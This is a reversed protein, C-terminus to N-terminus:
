VTTRFKYDPGVLSLIAATTFLKTNSAPTFLKDADHSYLTKGTTLSVVEIGWFGRAVDPEALIKDIDATLNPKKEAVVFQCSLLVVLILPLYRRNIRMTSGAPSSFELMSQAVCLHVCAGILLSTIPANM